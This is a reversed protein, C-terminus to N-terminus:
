WPLCTRTDGSEVAITGSGTALRPHQVVEGAAAASTVNQVDTGTGILKCLTVVLRPTGTEAAALYIRIGFQEPQEPNTLNEKELKDFYEDLENKYFAFSQIETSFYNKAREADPGQQKALITNVYKRIALFDNIMKNADAFPTRHSSRPLEM